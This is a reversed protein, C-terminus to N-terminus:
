AVRRRGRAAPDVEGAQSIRQIHEARFKAQGAIFTCAVERAAVKGALWRLSVGLLAATEKMSYHQLPNEALTAEPNIVQTTARREALASTATM